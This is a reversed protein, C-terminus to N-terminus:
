LALLSIGLGVALLPYVARVLSIGGAKMATIESEGSLRQLALLTGLLMAMPIVLVIISPIQWFFYAIAAWLPAHEDAILRSIALLNSAAFILTFASLGFSFPGGLETIM